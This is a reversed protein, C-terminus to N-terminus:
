YELGELKSKEKAKPMIRFFAEGDAKTALGCYNDAKMKDSTGTMAVTKAPDGYAAVHYTIFTHRGCNQFVPIGHKRALKYMQIQTRNNVKKVADMFDFSKMWALATPEIHFARPRKGRQYGKGKAIRVTEGDLDVRAADNGEMIRRIEVARSGCFFNVIAYALMEPHEDKVSELLRFLREVDTPKMYEPEEWPEPKYKLNKAPNEILYKREDDCCWRFFGKIYNLHQNYTKPKLKVTERKKTEKNMRTKAVLNREMYDFIERATVSALSKELGYESAWRRVTSNVNNKNEGLKSKWFEDVANGVTMGSDTSVIRSKGDLFERVVQTLTMDEGANALEELANKADMAEMATLRVAADGGTSHRLFFDKIDKLLEDRNARTKRVANKTFPDTGFYAEWDVHERGFRDKRIRQRIGKEVAGKTLYGM